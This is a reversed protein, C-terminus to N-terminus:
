GRWVCVSGWEGLCGVWLGCCCMWQFRPIDWWDFPWSDKRSWNIISSYFLFINLESNLGFYQQASIVPVTFFQESTIWVLNNDQPSAHLQLVVCVFWVCTCAFYPLSIFLLYIDRKWKRSWRKAARSKWLTFDIPYQFDM